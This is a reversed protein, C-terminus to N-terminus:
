STFGLLSALDMGGPFHARIIAAEMRKLDMMDSSSRSTQSAGKAEDSSSSVAGDDDFLWLKGRPFQTLLNHLVNEGLPKFSMSDLSKDCTGRPTEKTSFALIEAAVEKAMRSGARELDRSAGQESADFSERSPSGRFAEIGDETTFTARASAGESKRRFGVTGDLFLVGGNKELGLSQRLLCSARVFTRQTSSYLDDPKITNKEFPDRVYSDTSNSGIGPSTSIPSLGKSEPPQSGDSVAEQGGNCFADPRTDHLLATQSSNIGNEVHLGNTKLQPRNNRRNNHRHQHEMLDDLDTSSESRDAGRVSLWDKGEVFANLGKSMRIGNKRKKAERTIELHGMITKAITGLFRRQERNLPPRVIDDLIFLSGINVGRKTTLPTGAYYKFHPPGTVFPLMNFRDDNSLDTIEFCAFDGHVPPLEVTKECLRGSKNVNSCGLWLGDGEEESKTNDVLDLTKTAEAIFYQTEKGIVSIMARSAKLRLATLQALATLTTDPSSTPLACLTNAAEASPTSVAKESPPENPLYYKFTERERIRDAKAISSSRRQGPPPAQLAM